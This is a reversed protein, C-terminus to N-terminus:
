HYWLHHAAYGRQMLGYRLCASRDCYEPNAEISAFTMCEPKPCVPDSPFNECYRRCLFSELGDQRCRDQCRGRQKELTANVSPDQASLLGLAEKSCTGTCVDYATPDSTTNSSALDEVWNLSACLREECVAMNQAFVDPIYCDPSHLTTNAVLAVTAPDPCVPDAPFSLCYSLCMVSKEVGAVRCRAQCRGRMPLTADYTNLDDLRGLRQASCPLGCLDSEEELSGMALTSYDKPAYLAACYHHDCIELNAEVSALTTCDPLSCVPDLPYDHCYSQCLFSGRQGDLTCRARCKARLPPTAVVTNNSDFQLRGLSLKNCMSACIDAATGEIDASSSSSSLESVKWMFPSCMTADCFGMNKEFIMPALCHVTPAATPAATPSPTFTKKQAIAAVTAPPPCVTMDSPFSLCYSLCALSNEIGDVVCLNRCRERQDATDATGEPGLRQASCAQTCVAYTTANQGALPPNVVPFLADCVNQSCYELNAEISALTTCGPRPCAPDGPYDTCYAQCAFSGYGGDECRTQCRARMGQTETNGPEGLTLYSCASRCVDYATPDALDSGSTNLHKIRWLYDPCLKPECYEFNALFTAPILCNATPSMTPGQTPSATPERTALSTIQYAGFRAEDLERRGGHLHLNTDVEETLRGEERRSVMTRKLVRSRKRSTAGGSAILALTCTGGLCSCQPQGNGGDLYNMYSPEVPLRLSCYMFCDDLTPSPLNSPTGSGICRTGESGFTTFAPVRVAAISAVSSSGSACKNAPKKADQYVAIEPIAPQAPCLPVGNVVQVGSATFRLPTPSDRCGDVIFELTVGIKAMFGPIPTLEWLVMGGGVVPQFRMNKIAPFTKAAAYKVGSPMDVRLIYTYAAATRSTAPNIITFKLKFQSGSAVRTSSAKAKLGLCAGSQM